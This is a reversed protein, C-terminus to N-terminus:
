NKKGWYKGIINANESEQGIAGLNSFISQAAQSRLNSLAARNRANIDKEQFSLGANLQQAQLLQQNYQADLANNMNLVNLYRQWNAEDAQMQINGLKDAYQLDSGAVNAMYQARNGASAERLQSATSRQAQNVQQIIPRTDIYKMQARQGKSPLSVKDYSVVEPKEGALSLAQGLNGLVPAYKLYDAYNVDSQNKPVHIGGYRTEYDKALDFTSTPAVLAAKKNILSSNIKTLDGEGHKWSTANKAFNAKKVMATSYNDKNALVQSAFAQVSKGYKTAAATFTGKKSPDINISGGGAFKNGSTLDETLNLGRIASDVYKVAKTTKGIVPIAGLPQLIDNYDFKGDTLAKKADSWSTIGTPDLMKIISGLMHTDMNNQAKKIASSWTENKLKASQRESSESIRVPGSWWPKKSTSGGNKFPNMVGNLVFFRNKTNRLVTGGMALENSNNKTSKGDKLIEQAMFVDDLKPLLGNRRIQDMPLIENKGAVKDAVFQRNIIKSAEAPTKGIFSKNLGTQEIVSKTLKLRDSYVRNTNGVKTITEGQEASNMIGGTSSFPVGGYPNSGHSGGNNIEMLPFEGGNAAYNMPNLKANFLANSQQQKNVFDFQGATKANASETKREMSKAGFISTIGGIIAGGAAGIATGIGPMIATGIGAGTGTMSAVTGLTNYKNYVNNTNLAQQYLADTNNTYQFKTSNYNGDPNVGSIVQSALQTAGTVAGAYNIGSSQSTNTSATDAM